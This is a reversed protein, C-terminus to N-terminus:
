PVRLVPEGNFVQAIAAFLDAKRKKMTSVFSRIKAHNSIGAWSRFSLSVKQKTKEARLDRESLNNTFPVKYDRMFLLYCDKFDTLRNLMKRFEDYGFEGKQMQGLEARGCEILEDYKREFGALLTADCETKNDELDKNKHNNMGAVHARMGDAWAIKELDRLGKLDRLLHEGCTAHAKGYNYFKSEHDHSLTGLYRPLVNDRDVGAKDKKPNVTYLTSMENSYTRVTADFSKGEATRIVVEGNDLYDVTEVCRLPTDDTHMVEGNLLDDTIAELEGSSELKRAFQSLFSELTAPSITVTGRTLGALIESLRLEAIIGENLLLVSMAKIGDGYSVENYLGKPLQADVAFRHETITTIVEIDIVFRSIYESAGDTHDIVRKTAIGKEVLEDINEPLELRHGPHGPQGGIKRGSKERSNKSHRKFGNQGPPKSSNTSDKNVIAKLRAIEMHAKELETLLPATAGAVAAMAAADIRAQMTEARLDKAEGLEKTLAAIEKQLMAIIADKDHVQARLGKLEDEYARISLETKVQQNEFRIRLDKNQKELVQKPTLTKM